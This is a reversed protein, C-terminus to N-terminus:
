KGVCGVLQRINVQAFFICNQGEVQMMLAALKTFIALLLQCASTM